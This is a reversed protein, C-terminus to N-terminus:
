KGPPAAGDFAYVVSREVAPKERFESAPVTWTVDNGTAKASTEAVPGPFHLRVV